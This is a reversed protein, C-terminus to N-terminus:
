KQAEKKFQSYYIERYVDCNTLLEEHKGIGAIEGDDLVVIMDAHM